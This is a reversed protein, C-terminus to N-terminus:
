DTKEGFDPRGYKAFLPEAVERYIQDCTQIKSRLSWMRVDLVRRAEEPAFGALTRKEAIAKALDDRLERMASFLRAVRQGGRRAEEPLTDLWPQWGVPTEQTETYVLRKVKEFVFDTNSKQSEFREQTESSLEVFTGQILADIEHARRAADEPSLTRVPPPTRVPEDPHPANQRKLELTPIWAEPPLQWFWELWEQTLSGPPDSELEGEVRRILEATTAGYRRRYFAEKFRGLM